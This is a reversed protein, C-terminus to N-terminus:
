SKNLIRSLSVPSIGLYSAIHYQSIRHMLHEYDNLFNQYREQASFLVLQFERREKILFHQEAIVRGLTNWNNYKEYLKTLVTHGVVLTTTPEMAEINIRAPVKQLIEGFPGAIENECRFARTFEKGSQDIYYIRVLGSIIIHFKNYVEGSSVLRSGKAHKVETLQPEIELWEDTTLNALQAFQKFLDPYKL